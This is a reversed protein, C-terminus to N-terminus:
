RCTKPWSKEPTGEVFNLNRALVFFYDSLRNLYVAIVPCVSAQAALAVVRREARRCITRCVHAQAAAVTGGPLIFSHLPPLQASLQDIHDEVTGVPLEIQPCTADALNCGLRFLESQVEQLFDVESWAALLGVASNLEDVTGYAEVRADSKSVRQGGVLSTIGGDGRRTYIKSKSESTSSM